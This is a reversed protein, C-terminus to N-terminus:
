NEGHRNRMYRRLLMCTSRLFATKDTKVAQDGARIKFVSRARALRRPVDEVTVKIWVNTDNFQDPFLTPVLLSVIKLEFVAITRDGQWPKYM